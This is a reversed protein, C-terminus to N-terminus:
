MSPTAKEHEALATELQGIVKDFMGFFNLRRIAAIERRGEDIQGTAILLVILNKRAEFDFPAQRVAERIDREAAARDHQLYWAYEAHVSLLAPSPQPHALAAEYAKGLEAVGVKCKEEIFCANLNQLSRADSPSAPARRLKEILSQMWAPDIDRGMAAHMTILIQEFRIGAGPLHSADELALFGDEVLPQGNPGNSSLLVRAREYQAIPSDPRKSAESMALRKGDSWEEARMWTTFAYFAFLASAVVVPVRYRQQRQEIALLSAIALLLGASPFYNRHEFAFLLPIITATLVHGAFFWLIGLSFLPRRRLQWLAALLLALLAALAALTSPPDLLGKSAQIDDHYLTLSDLSPALTWAIYDVLVRFETEVRALTGFSRQYAGPRAVWGALWVLGVVLPVALMCGYIWLVGRDITGDRRRLRTVALEVCFAYLPLLVASEKVLVGVTTGVLLSAWLGFAGREQRWYALRARLYWALGLFVFTNSLAELRQSVYLVGTLNIPLVLWLAAIAAAAADLRPQAVGDGRCERWLAFLARLALFLLLGNLLHIGLNTLKFWYPDLGTFYYNAAFSLMGLWRGQNTGSPFSIAAAVWDGLDLTDVQIRGNGVVFSMDDYVFDGSLGPWYVLAAVLLAGCVAIWTVLQRIRTDM